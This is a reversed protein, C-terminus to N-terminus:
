RNQVRHICVVRCRGVPSGQMYYMQQQEPPCRDVAALVAEVEAAEMQKRHRGLPNQQIAHMCGWDIITELEQAQDAAAGTLQRACRGSNGGGGGVGDTEQLRVATQLRFATQM